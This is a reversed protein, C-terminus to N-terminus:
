ARVAFAPVRAHPAVPAPHHGFADLDLRLVLEPDATRLADLCAAIERDQEARRRDLDGLRDDISM